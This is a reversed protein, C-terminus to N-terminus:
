VKVILEKVMLVCDTEKLEVTSPTDGVLTNCVVHGVSRGVVRLLEADRVVLSYLPVKSIAILGRREDTIPQDDTFSHMKGEQFEVANYPSGHPEVKMLLKEGHQKTRFREGPVLDGFTKRSNEISFIM